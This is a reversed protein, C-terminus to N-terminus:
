PVLPSRFNDFSLFSSFVIKKVMNTKLQFDVEFELSKNLFFFGFKKEQAPIAM